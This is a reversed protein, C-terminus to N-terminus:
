EAERSRHADAQRAAEVAFRRAVGLLDRLENATPALEYSHHHCARSLDSWAAVTERALERNSPYVTLCLLRAHWTCREMGPERLAWYQRLTEEIAHRALVAVVRPWGHAFASRGPGALADAEGTRGADDFLALALKPMLTRADNLVEDTDAHPEGRGNRRRRVVEACAAEMALRCFLPVARAAASPPLDDTRLLARADSLYQTVPDRITRCEVQSGLRRM